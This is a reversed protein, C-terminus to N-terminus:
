NTQSIRISGFKLMHNLFVISSNFAHSVELKELKFPLFDQFLKITQLVANEEFDSKVDNALSLYKELLELPSATTADLFNRTFAWLEGSVKLLKERTLVLESLAELRADPSAELNSYYNGWNTTLVKQANEMDRFIPTSFVIHSLGQSFAYGICIPLEAIFLANKFPEVAKRYDAPLSDYIKKYFKPGGSSIAAVIEMATAIGEHANWSHQISYSLVTNFEKQLSKPLGPDDMLLGLIKQFLGFPTSSCTHLHQSEHLETLIPFDNKTQEPHYINVLNQFKYEGLIIQNISRHTLEFDTKSIDLLTDM